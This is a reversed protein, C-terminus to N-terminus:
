FKFLENVEKQLGLSVVNLCHATCVVTFLCFVVTYMKQIKCCYSRGVQDSSGWAASSPPPDLDSHCLLM